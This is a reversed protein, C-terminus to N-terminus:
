GFELFYARVHRAGELKRLGESKNPDTALNWYGKGSMDPEQVLCTRDVGEECRSLGKGSKDLDTELNCYCKGSM